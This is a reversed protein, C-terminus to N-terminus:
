RASPKEPGVRRYTNITARSTPSAENGVRAAIVAPVSSNSPPVVPAISTGNRGGGDAPWTTGTRGAGDTEGDCDGGYV